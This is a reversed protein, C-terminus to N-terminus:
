GEKGCGRAPILMGWPLRQGQLIEGKADRTFVAWVFMEWGDGPGGADGVSGESFV